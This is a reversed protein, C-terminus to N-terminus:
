EGLIKKGVSFAKAIPQGLGFYTSVGPAYVLPRLKAMDVQGSEPDFGLASRGPLLFFESEEPLPMLEDPRPLELEGGRRCLMLLDPHDYINGSEDAFVLTPQIHTSAAM